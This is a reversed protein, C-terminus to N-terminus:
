VAVCEVEVLAGGALAAVGVAGRAPYPECRSAMTGVLDEPPNSKGANMSYKLKSSYV